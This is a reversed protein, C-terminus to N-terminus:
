LNKFNCSRMRSDILCQSNEYLFELLFNLSKFNLWNLFTCQIEKCSYGGLVLFNEDCFNM